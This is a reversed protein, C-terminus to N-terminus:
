NLGPDLISTDSIHRLFVDFENQGMDRLQWLAQSGDRALMEFSPVRRGSGKDTIDPILIWIILM